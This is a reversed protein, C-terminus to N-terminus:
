VVDATTAGRHARPSLDPVGPSPDRSRPVAPLFRSGPPALSSDLPRLRGDDILRVPRHAAPVAPPLDVVVGESTFEVSAVRAGPIELMRNFATTVRM